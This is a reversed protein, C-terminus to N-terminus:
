NRFKIGRSIANGEVASLSYKKRSVPHWNYPEPLTITANQEKLFNLDISGYLYAILEKPLTGVPIAEAGMGFKGMDFSKSEACYLTPSAGYSSRVAYLEKKNSLMFVLNAPDLAVTLKGADLKFACSTWELRPAFIMNEALKGEESYNLADKNKYMYEFIERPRPHRVYARGFGGRTEKLDKLSEDFCWLVGCQPNPEFIIKSLDLLPIQIEQEPEKFTGNAIQANVKDVLSEDYRKRKRDGLIEKKM